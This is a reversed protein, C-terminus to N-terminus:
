CSFIWYVALCFGYRQGNVAAVNKKVNEPHFITDNIAPGIINFKAPLAKSAAEGTADLTVEESIITNSTGEGMAAPYAVAAMVSILKPDTTNGVTDVFKNVVDIDALWEAITITVNKKVELSYEQSQNEPLAVASASAALCLAAPLITSFHM